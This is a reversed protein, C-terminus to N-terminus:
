RGRCKWDQGGEWPSEPFHRLQKNIRGNSGSSIVKTKIIVHGNPKVPPNVAKLTLRVSKRISQGLERSLLHSILLDADSALLFISIPWSVIDRSDSYM